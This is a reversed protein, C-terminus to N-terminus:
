AVNMEKLEEQYKEADRASKIGRIFVIVFIVKLLIGKLLFAPNIFVVSLQLLIWFVFAAMIGILPKKNVWFVCGFFVLSAIINAVADSASGTFGLHYLGILLNLSGIVILLIKVNKIKKRADNVVNKTLQIRYDYREKEKPTGREPYGCNNCFTDNEGLATSCRSCNISEEM